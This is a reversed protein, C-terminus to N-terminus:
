HALRNGPALDSTPCDSGNDRGPDAIMGETRSSYGFLKLIAPLELGSLFHGIILACTRRAKVSTTTVLDSKVLNLTGENIRLAPSECM